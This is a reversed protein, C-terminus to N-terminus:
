KAGISAPQDSGVLRWLLRALLSLSAFPKQLVHAAGMARLQETHYKGTNGSIFCFRVGPNIKQLAALTDPGDLDPMQVDLLVLAITQHHQTYLDIAKHGSAALKVAFGYHRLAVELMKLVEAQDEVVLIEPRHTALLRQIAALLIDADIPKRVHCVDGLLDAQEEAIEDIAALVIVPVSALTPDQMQRKRLEHGDMIPLQLALLIIDPLAHRQLLDLADNGNAALHVSYGEAELVLRLAESFMADAEVLLITKKTLNQSTV